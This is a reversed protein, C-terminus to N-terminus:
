KVWFFFVSIGLLFKSQVCGRTGGFCARENHCFSTASSPTVPLIPQSSILSQGPTSQSLLQYRLRQHLRPTHTNGIYDLTYASHTNSKKQQCTVAFSNMHGRISHRKAQSLLYRHAVCKDGSRKDSVGTVLRRGGHVM